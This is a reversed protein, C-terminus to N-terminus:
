PRYPRNASISPYSSIAPTQTQITTISSNPSTTLQQWQALNHICGPDAHDLRNFYADARARCGGCYNRYDCLGCHNERELRNCFLDWWPSQQFIETFPKERINGMIRNPMYVCPTVDGNPQLCAYTRGAGCGGLYRAVIRAKAGSANGAHSCSILEDENAHTLCVRGFQPATSIIGIRRSNMWRRLLELLDERQAPTIDLHAMDAGRGVPIFNFHAFCSVGLDLAFRIMNEVEHYNEGTVCMALGARLGDTAVVNKIGEVSRQWMGPVGRFRDHKEATPFDLSIEVYRLGKDALRKCRDKTLLGGHTAVTTHIGYKQCRALAPELHPSLTPEGGAFAIMAVYDRGFQDIIRLKEELSLESTDTKTTSSQYCHRCRLDCRNTFNWVVFLPNIWRQPRTLGFHAVSQATAIIGRITPPHGALKRRLQAPSLSGSLRDIIKHIPWYAIREYSRADPDGYSRLASLLHPVATGPRDQSILGLLYRVWPRDLWRELPHTYNTSAVPSDDQLLKNNKNTM